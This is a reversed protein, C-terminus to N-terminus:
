PVLPPPLERRDLAAIAAALHDGAHDLVFCGHGALLADPRLDAARRLSAALATRDTGPTQLVAVRGRAFVLDGSFLVRQGGYQAGGYQALFCLHGTAHGPTAVARLTIAGVSIEEGDALEGTPTPLLAIPPPYLGTARASPLDAADEDGRRLVDATFPAAWVQADLRQALERAGASHDAHAHTVLIRSVASPEVGAAAIRNVIADTAAGCGADILVADGGDSLLYVHCDDRHTISLGLWGSGVVDIGPRVRM